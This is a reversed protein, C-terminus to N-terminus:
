GSSCSHRSEFSQAFHSNCGDGDAHKFRGSSSHEPICCELLDCTSWHCPWGPCIPLAAYVMEERCFVLCCHTYLCKGIRVLHFLAACMLLPPSGLELLPLDELLNVKQLSIVSCLLPSRVAWYPPGEVAKSPGAGQYAVQKPPELYGPLQHVQTLKMQLGGTKSAGPATAPAAADTEAKGFLFQSTLHQGKVTNVFGQFTASPQNQNLIYAINTRQGEVSLEARIQPYAQLQQVPATFRVEFPQGPVGVVYKDVGHDIDSYAGANAPKVVEM